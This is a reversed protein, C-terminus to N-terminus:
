APVRIYYRTGSGPSSQIELLGNLFSVRSQISKLGISQSELMKEVIFGKGDDSYRIELKGDVSGIHISINSAEAHKLTNNVLEQVIRYLMIENNEPIRALNAEIECVARIQRSENLKDILDEVAEFLGLKTLLGPMMNHSIKRVDGVAQELLQTARDILPKNEPSTDKISSFQMRTASLLVGLGDHLETAIRKREEEQGEVLLKAAMLKKEEELQRIMQNAIIKDKKTKQRFYLLIFLTLAVVALGTYMYANRQITSKRLDLDKQLNANKLELIKADDKQKEYKMTLDNIVKTKEINFISDKLDTYRVHYQYAKKFNGLEMWYYSLNKYATFLYDNLNYKEAITIMREHYDIAEKYKGQVYFLVGMNKLVVAIGRNYKKQTYGELAKSFFEYARKYDKNAQYIMAMNNYLHCIGITDKIRISIEMSKQYYEMAKAYEKELDYVRGYSSFCKAMQYDNPNKNYLDVAKDLYELATEYQGLELYVDSLNSYLIGLSGTQGKLEYIAMARLFYVSASDYQAQRLYTTGIANYNAMIGFTDKLAYYFSLSVLYEEQADIFRLYGSLIEGKNYHGKAQKKPDQLSDALVIFQNILVMAASDNQRMKEVLSKLYIAEAYGSPYNIKKSLDYLTDCYVLCTDTDRTRYLRALKLYNDAKETNDQLGSILLKLSDVKSSQSWGLQTSLLILFFLLVPIIGKM